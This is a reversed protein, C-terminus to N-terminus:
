IVEPNMELHPSLGSFEKKAGLISALVPALNQGTKTWATAKKLHHLATTVAFVTTTLMSSHESPKKMSLVLPITRRPKFAEVRAERLKRRERQM